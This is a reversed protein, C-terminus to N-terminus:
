FSAYIRRAVIMFRRNYWNHVWDMWPSWREKLFAESRLVHEDALDYLALYKPGSLKSGARGSLQTEVARFRRRTIFGPVRSLAVMHDTNYWANFEEDKELPVDIGVALLIESDPPQYEEDPYIQEYLGRSFDPLAPTLREFSDPPLAHEEDQLKLYAECSYVELDALDYLSIYKPEGSIAVFRRAYRYSPFSLRSPIHTKGYWQNWEEERASPAGMRIFQVYRKEAM